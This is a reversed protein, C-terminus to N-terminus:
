GRNSWLKGSKFRFENKDKKDQKGHHGVEEKM